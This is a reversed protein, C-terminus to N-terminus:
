TKSNIEIDVFPYICLFKTVIEMKEKDKENTVVIKTFGERMEDIIQKYIKSLSNNLLDNNFKRMDRGYYLFDDKNIQEIKISRITENKYFLILNQLFINNNELFRKGVIFELIKSKKITEKQMYIPIYTLKMKNFIRFLIYQLTYFPINYYKMLNTATRLEGNIVNLKGIENNIYNGEFVRYRIIPFDVTRVNLMTVNDQYNLWFPMNWDIYNNMIYTSFINYKAVFTDAYLNRGLWLLQLAPIYKKRFYRKTKQIGIANGNEDMMPINAIIAVVDKEKEFYSNIDRLVNSNELIDDSHLILVLSNHDLKDSVNKVANLQDQNEQFFYKIRKEDNQKIFNKVVESTNDTSGDDSVFLEWNDYTQNIVSNLTEVITLADNYTPM